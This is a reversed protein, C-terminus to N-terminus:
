NDVKNGPPRILPNNRSLNEPLLAYSYIKIKELKLCQAYDGIFETLYQLGDPIEGTTYRRFEGIRTV